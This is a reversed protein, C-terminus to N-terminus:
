PTAKAAWSAAFLAPAAGPKAPGREKFLDIGQAKSHGPCSGIMANFRSSVFFIFNPKLILRRTRLTSGASTARKRTNGTALTLSTMARSGAPPGRMRGICAPPTIAPGAKVTFVRGPSLRRTWLASSRASGPSTITTSAPPSRLLAIMPSIM